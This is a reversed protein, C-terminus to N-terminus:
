RAATTAAAVVQRLLGALPEPQRGAERRALDLLRPDSAARLFPATKAKHGAGAAVPDSADLSGALAAVLRLAAAESGTAMFHALVM